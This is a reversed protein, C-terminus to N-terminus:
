EQSDKTAADRGIWFEVRKKETADIRMGADGESM